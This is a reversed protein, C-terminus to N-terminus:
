FPSPAQGIVVDDKVALTRRVPELMPYTSQAVQFGADVSWGTTSPVMDDDDGLGSPGAKDDNNLTSSAPSLAGRLLVDYDPADRNHLVPFPLDDVKLIDM